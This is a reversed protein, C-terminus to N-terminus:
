KANLRIIEQAIGRRLRDYGSPNLEPEPGPRDYIFPYIGKMNAAAIYSKQNNDMHIMAMAGDLVKEARAASKTKGSRKARDIATKLTTLYRYDDVGERIAEWGISPIPERVTPWTFSLVGVDAKNAPDWSNVGYAKAVDAYTWNSVGKLGTKWAWFGYTYRSTQADVPALSCDYYWLEKGKRKAKNVMGQCVDSGYCIWIDYQEGIQDIAVANIATTTRIKLEPHRTRLDNVKAMVERVKVQQEPSVPEDVVYLFAEPWGRKKAEKYVGEYIGVDGSEASGIWILKGEKGVLGTGMMERVLTVGPLAQPNRGTAVNISGDPNKGAWMYLTASNMGHEKMDLFAKRQWPVTRTFLPSFHMGFYSFYSIGKPQELKIPLVDLRFKLTKFARGGAKITVAGTYNGPKANQPVQVTLWFRQTTDAPIDLKTLLPLYCEKVHEMIVSTDVQRVVVSKKPIVGAKSKLDSVEVSVGRMPENARISFTCPEYEGPSAFVSLTDRVVGESPMTSPLGRQMYSTMFVTCDPGNGACWAGRSSLSFCVLVVSLFRLRFGM